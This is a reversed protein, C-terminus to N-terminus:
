FPMREDPFRIDPELLQAPTESRRTGAGSGGPGAVICDLGALMDGVPMPVMAEDEVVPIRLGDLGPEGGTVARRPEGPAASPHPV